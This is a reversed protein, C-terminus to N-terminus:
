RGMRHAIATRQREIHSSLNAIRAILTPDISGALLRQALDDLNDVPQGLDDSLMDALQIARLSMDPNFGASIEALLRVLRERHLSVQKKTQLDVIVDDLLTAYDEFSSHVSSLLGLESM